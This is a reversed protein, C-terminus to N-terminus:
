ERTWKRNTYLLCHTTTTSHSVSRLKSRHKGPKRKAYENSTTYTSSIPFRICGHDEICGITLARLPLMCDFRNTHRKRVMAISRQKTQPHQHIRCYTTNKLRRSHNWMAIPFRNWDATPHQAGTTARSAMHNTTATGRSTWPQLASHRIAKITLSM